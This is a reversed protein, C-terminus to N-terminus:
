FWEIKINRFACIETKNVMNAILDYEDNILNQMNNSNSLLSVKGLSHETKDPSLVLVFCTTLLTNLYSSYEQPLPFDCYCYVIDQQEQSAQLTAEILGHEVTNSGASISTTPATNQTAIGFLGPTSNHVALAFKTPSLPEFNAAYKILEVTNALDGHRSAFVLPLQRSVLSGIDLTSLVLRSFPSLRRLQGKPYYAPKPPEFISPFKKEKVAEVLEQKENLGNVWLNLANIYVSSKEM